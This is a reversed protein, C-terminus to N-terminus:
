CVPLSARMSGELNATFAGLDLLADHYFSHMHIRDRDCMCSANLGYLIESELFHFGVVYLRSFGAHKETDPDFEFSSGGAMLDVAFAM